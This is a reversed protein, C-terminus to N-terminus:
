ERSGSMLIQQLESFAHHGDAAKAPNVLSAVGMLAAAGTVKGLFERRNAPHVFKNKSM